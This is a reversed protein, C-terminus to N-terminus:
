QKLINTRTMIRDYIEENTRQVVTKVKVSNDEKDHRHAPANKEYEKYIIEWNVIPYGTITNANNHLDSSWKFMAKENTENVVKEPPFKAIFEMAHERCLHCTINSCLTRITKCYNLQDAKSKAHFALIHIAIWMGKGFRKPDDSIKHHMAM